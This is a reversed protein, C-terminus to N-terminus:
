QVLQNVPPAGGGFFSLVSEREGARVGTAADDEGKLKFVSFQFSFVSFQSSFVFRDTKGGWSGNRFRGPM